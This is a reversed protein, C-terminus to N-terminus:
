LFLSERDASPAKRVRFEGIETLLPTRHDVDERVDDAGAVQGRVIPSLEGGDAVNRRVVEGCEADFGRRAPENQGRFRLLRPRLWDYNQAVRIPLPSKAASGDDSLLHQDVSMGCSDDADSRFFKM